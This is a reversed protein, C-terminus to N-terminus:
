YSKGYWLCGVQEEFKSSPKEDEMYKFLVTRNLIKGCRFFLFFVVDKVLVKDKKTIIQEGNKTQQDQIFFSAGDDKSPIYSGIPCLVKSDTDCRIILKWLTDLGEKEHESEPIMKIRTDSETLIKM